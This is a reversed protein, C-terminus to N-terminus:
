SGSLNEDRVHYKSIKAAEIKTEMVNISDVGTNHGLFNIHPKAFSCKNIYLYLGNNSLTELVQKLHEIHDSESGSYILIYDLYIFSFDSCLEFTHDMFQQLRTPANRLGFM